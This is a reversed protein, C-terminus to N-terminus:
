SEDNGTRYLGFDLGLDDMRIAIRAASGLEASGDGLGDSDFDARDSRVRASPSM